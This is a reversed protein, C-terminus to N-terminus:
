LESVQVNEERGSDDPHSGDKHSGEQHRSDQGTKDQITAEQNSEDRRTADQQDMNATDIEEEEEEEVDVEIVRSLRNSPGATLNTLQVVQHNQNPDDDIFIKQLAEDVGELADDVTDYIVVDKIKAKDILTRMSPRVGALVLTSNKKSFSKFIDKLGEIVSYDMSSVNSFDLIASPPKEQILAKDDLLNQLESVAPFRLGREMQIIVVSQDVEKSTLGPKGYPYLLMLLDVLIGIITGYEVGLWLSVFFTMALTILDPKRVRWLKVVIHYDIMFLVAYIIVAALSAKPIYYFVPTLFALSVIVLTGTVIGSAQTMVGSQENIASRSFSGTIPYGSIFSSGINCAGIAILEQNTDVRYGNKRAFGKVIAINELFGLMPIIILGINLHKIINDAGFNPLSLPPLGDTVNGTITFVEEMGNEHLGYTIGAAVVVIVANRATGFVWLFKWIIKKRLPPKKGLKEIKQQAINKMFRMLALAVICSLGLTLDQWRTETIHRFTEILDHFFTEAPFKIGLITKVQSMAITIASASTFGAIVVASIYNAIFGLHLIGFVLQVIGCCFALLIAYTPDNLEEDGPIPTGYQAVLLSMIATPGVSIDKSMGFLAYMFGGMIAAYLGYESPLKAIGAYALGQPLVTLGVTLGAIIDNVGKYIRYKPLWMSIPFREKWKEKSCYNKVKSKLRRAVEKRQRSSSM